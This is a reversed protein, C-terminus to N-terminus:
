CAAAAAGALGGTRAQGAAHLVADLLYFPVQWRLGHVGRAKSYTFDLPLKVGIPWNLESKLPHLILDVEDLLLAGTRFLGVIEM